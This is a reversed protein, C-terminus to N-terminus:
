KVEHKEEKILISEHKNKKFLDPRKQSRVKKRFATSKSKWLIVEQLEDCYGSEYSVWVHEKVTNRARSAEFWEEKQLEDLWELAVRLHKIHVNSLNEPLILTVKSKEFISEMCGIKAMIMSVVEQKKM